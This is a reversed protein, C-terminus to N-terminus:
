EDFYNEECEDYESLAIDSQTLSKYIRYVTEAMLRFYAFLIANYKKEARHRARQRAIEQGVEVDFPEDERCTAVGTTVFVNKEFAEKLGKCLKPASDLIIDSPRGYREAFDKIHPKYVLTCKTTKTKSDTEFHEAVFELNIKKHIKKNNQM